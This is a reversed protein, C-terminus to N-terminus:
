NIKIHVNVHIAYIVVLSGCNQFYNLKLFDNWCYVLIGLLPLQIVILRAELM